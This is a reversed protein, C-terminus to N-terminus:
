AGMGEGRDSEGLYGGGVGGRSLGRRITYGQVPQAGSAYTFPWGVSGPMWWLVEAEPTLGKSRRSSLSAKLGALGRDCVRRGRHPRRAPDFLRTEWPTTGGPCTAPRSHRQGGERELCTRAGGAPVGCRAPGTPRVTGTACLGPTAPTAVVSRHDPHFGFDDLVLCLFDNLPTIVH